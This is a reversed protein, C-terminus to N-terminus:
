TARSIAYRDKLWLRSGAVLRSCRRRNLQFRIKCVVLYVPPRPNHRRAVIRVLGRTGRRM